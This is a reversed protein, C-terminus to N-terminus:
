DGASESDEHIARLFEDEIRRRVESLPADTHFGAARKHGGGGFAKAIAGVDISDISRLSATCTAHGEERIFAVLRVGSVGFLLQYLTDSDRNTRGFAAYDDNLEYTIAAVGDCVYETRELFKALLRRSEPTHGGMMQQHATKPSAGGQLLRSIASFLGASYEDAHRFYGTDTAIGFLLLEAKEHSIPEGMRELVLQVLYCAAPASTDIFQVDGFPVGTAHHDIVAAPLGELDVAIEGVRDLGSCDVIITAPTDDGMRETSSLRPKFRSEYRMIERREFPGVNFYKVRKRQTRELYSGLALQSAVCDGDPEVHGVIYFTEYQGIFALLESPVRPTTPTANESM